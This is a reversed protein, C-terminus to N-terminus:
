HTYHLGGRLGASFVSPQSLSSNYRYGGPIVAVSSSRSLLYDIRLSALVTFSVEPTGGITDRYSVAPVISITPIARLVDLAIGVGVGAQLLQATDQPQTSDQLPFAASLLAQISFTDTLGYAAEVGLGAGSRRETEFFLHYDLGAHLSFEREESAAISSYLLSLAAFVLSLQKM